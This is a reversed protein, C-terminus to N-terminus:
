RRRSGRGAKGRTLEVDREARASRVAAASDVGQARTPTRALEAFWEATSPLSLEVKLMRLLYDNISMGEDAARRRLEDHLEDPVNKVQIAGM